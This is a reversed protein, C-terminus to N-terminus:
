PVGGLFTQQVLNQLELKEDLARAFREIEERTALPNDKWFADWSRRHIESLHIQDNLTTPIGRLNELKSM